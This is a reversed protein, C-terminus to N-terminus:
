VRLYKAKILGVFIGYICRKKEVEITQKAM